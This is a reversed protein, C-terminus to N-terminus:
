DSYSLVMSELDSSESFAGNSNYYLNSQASGSLYADIFGDRNVDALDMGGIGGIYKAITDTYTVQNSQSGISLTGDSNGNIIDFFVGFRTSDYGSLILDIAGDNDIDAVQITNAISQPLASSLTSDLVFPNQAVVLSLGIGFSLKRAIRNKQWNM